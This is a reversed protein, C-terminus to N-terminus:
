ILRSTRDCGLHKMVAKRFVKNFAVLIIFDFCSKLPQTGDSIMYFVFVTLDFYFYSYVITFVIVGHEFVSFSCMFIAMITAREDSRTVKRGEGGEKDNNQLFTSVNQRTTVSHMTTFSPGTSKIRVKKTFHRKLKYISVMNLGILVFTLAVDRLAYIIYLLVQGLLTTAFESPYSYWVTFTFTRNLKVDTSYPVYIFYYPIDIVFIVVFAIMSIVYPSLKFFTRMRFDFYSIRDLIIVINLVSGYFYSINVVPILIYNYYVQAGYSNSWEFIRYTSFVFNFINIFSCIINSLCYVRLYAYLPIKFEDSRLIVLSFASLIFGAISVATYGFLNISDLAWTSGYMKFLEDMTPYVHETTGNSLNSM